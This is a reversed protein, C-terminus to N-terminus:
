RGAPVPEQRSAEVVAEGADEVGVARTDPVDEGCEVDEAVGVALAKGLKM